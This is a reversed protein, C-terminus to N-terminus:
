ELLDNIIDYDDNAASINLTESRGYPILHDDLVRIFGASIVGGVLSAMVSHKKGPDFIIFGLTGRVYKPYLRESLYFNFIDFLDRRDPHEITLDKIEAFKMDKDHDLRPSNGILFSEEKCYYKM